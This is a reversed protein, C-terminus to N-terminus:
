LRLALGRAIERAIEDAQGAPDAAQRIPRGVVLFDAGYRVADCPAVIRKQDDGAMAQGGRIGPTVILFESGCALHIAAAEEASAVVGSVGADQAMCALSLATERAGRSFGMKRLDEDNLSTLVTVALVIPMPKGSREALRQVGKVTELMMQRGGLAHINFMAVGLAFAAESARTVTNPIDHFKLDLFVKGGRAHILRVIEPGFRVFSEKGVKFLGVHGMLRDVWSLAEEIGDGVDLAFIVREWSPNNSTSMM